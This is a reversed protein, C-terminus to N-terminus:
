KKPGKRTRPKNVEEEQHQEEAAIQATLSQQADTEVAQKETLVRKQVEVAKKASHAADEKAYKERSAQQQKILALYEGHQKGIAKAEEDTCPGVELHAFTKNVLEGYDEVICFGHGPINIEIQQGNPLLFGTVFPAKDPNYVKYNM